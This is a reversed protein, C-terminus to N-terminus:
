QFVETCIIVNFRCAINQRLQTLRSFPSSCHPPRTIFQRECKFVIRNFFSPAFFFSSFLPSFSFLFPSLVLYNLSLSLSFHPLSSSYYRFLSVAFDRSNIMSLSNEDGGGRAFEIQVVGGGRSPECDHRPSTALSNCPFSKFRFTKMRKKSGEKGGEHKSNFM